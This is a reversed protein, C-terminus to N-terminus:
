PPKPSLLPNPCQFNNDLLSLSSGNYKQCRSRRSFFFFFFCLFRSAFFFSGCFFFFFFCLFFFFSFFSCLFLSLVVSFWVGWVCGFVVVCCLFLFLFSLCVGGVVCLVGCWCWSPKPPTTSAYFISPTKATKMVVISLFFFRPHFNQVPRRTHLFLARVPHLLSRTILTRPRFSFTQFPLLTFFSRSILPVPLPFRRWAVERDFLPHIALSLISPSM